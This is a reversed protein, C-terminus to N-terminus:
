FILKSGILALLLLGGFVLIVPWFSLRGVANALIKTPGMSGANRYPFPIEPSAMELFACLPDWGQSVNYELLREQPIIQRVRDNHKRYAKLALSRDIGQDSILEPGFILQNLKEAFPWFRNLPPLFKIRKFRGIAQILRCYSEVWELEDRLTLIVKAEPFAKAISEFYYASPLDTTASYGRFIWEWDAEEPSIVGFALDSWFQLHEPKGLVVSMHYAPKGFLLEMAQKMSATGTRSMGVVLVQPYVTNKQPISQSSISM